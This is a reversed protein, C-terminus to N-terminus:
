RRRGAAHESAPRGPLARDDPAAVRGGPLVLRRGPGQRRAPRGPRVGIGGPGLGDPPASRLRHSGDPGRPRDRAPRRPPLLQRHHPAKRHGAASRRTSPRRRAGFVDFSPDLAGGATLRAVSIKTVGDISSFAGGIYMSGDPRLAISRVVAGRERQLRPPVLHRGDCRPPHPGHSQSDHHGGAPGARRRGPHKRGAAGRDLGRPRRSADTTAELNFTVDLTGDPNLRALTRMTAPGINSFDGGILIRGDPLLALGEVGRSVAM